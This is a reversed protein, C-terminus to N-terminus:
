WPIRQARILTTRWRETISKLPEVSDDVYEDVVNSEEETLELETHICDCSVLQGECFPCREKTCFLEHLEGRACGCDGCEGAM